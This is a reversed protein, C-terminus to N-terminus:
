DSGRVVSMDDHLPIRRERYDAVSAASGRTIQDRGSKTVIRNIRM